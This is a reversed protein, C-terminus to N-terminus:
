GRGKWQAKAWASRAEVSQDPKEEAEVEKITFHGVLSLQSGLSFSVRARPIPFGPANVAHAAVLELNGGISRWDGSLPSRMFESVKDPSTGPIVVGSVWIGYKDEGAFVSAVATGVDDYHETAARFGARPDAHGGGVTLKGVPVTVGEATKEGGLLFYAYDTQSNPATTCGPLGIHCVDWPAIHGFVRQFGSPHDEVTIPTPGALGPNAFMELPPLPAASAVLAMEEGSWSAERDMAETESPIQISVDAFAPIAVLTAGAIRASTMVLREMDDVYYEMDDLDVSPGIVGAQVMELFDEPASELFTGRATVMDPAYQIEEIRGVVQSGGHGEGSQQQWLLPLPLDRNTVGTPAIIRGDGTPQGLRALVATWTLAM